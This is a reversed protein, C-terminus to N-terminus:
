KSWKNKRKEQKLNGGKPKLNVLVSHVQSIRAEEEELVLLRM